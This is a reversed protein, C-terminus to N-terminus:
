ESQADGGCHVGARDCREGVGPFGDAWVLLQRCAALETALYALAHAALQERDLAAGDLAGNKVVRARIREGATDYLRSIAEVAKRAIALAEVGSM